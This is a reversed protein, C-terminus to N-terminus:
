AGDPEPINNLHQKNIDHTHTTNVWIMHVWIMHVYMRRRTSFVRLCSGRREDRSEEWGVPRAWDNMRWPHM